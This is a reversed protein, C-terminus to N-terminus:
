KSAEAIYALLNAMEDEKKIGAFAMKTGKVKAKPDVLYDKLHAEDWVLGEEGAKIMAPSYKYGELTGATRGILGHLSPGVKNKETEIDHCARCKAFVKKGAEVDQAWAHGGLATVVAVASVIANLRM